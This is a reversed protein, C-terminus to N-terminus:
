RADALARRLLIPGLLWALVAGYVIKYALLALFSWTAPALAPLLLWHLAGGIVASAAAVLLARLLLNSPLANADALAEVEGQRLRKRTLLTPVITTMLAIMFSQPVADLAIDRVPITESGGFLLFVFLASLVANIAIGILTERRVYLRQGPSLHTM